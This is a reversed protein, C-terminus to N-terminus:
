IRGFHANYNRYAHFLCSMLKLAHTYLIFKAETNGVENCAMRSRLETIWLAEDINPAFPVHDHNNHRRSM